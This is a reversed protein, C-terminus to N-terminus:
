YLSDPQVLLIVFGLIMRYITYIWEPIEDRTEHVQFSRSKQYGVCM